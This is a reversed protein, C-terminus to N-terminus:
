AADDVLRLGAESLLYEIRLREADRETGAPTTALLNEVGLARCCEGLVDDYARRWGEAKAVPTGPPVQMVQRRLRRVDAAIARIPRGEPVPAPKPVLHLRRGTARAFRGVAPAYLVVGLVAVLGATVALLRLVGELVGQEMRGRYDSV